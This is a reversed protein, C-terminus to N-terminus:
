KEEQAVLKTLVDIHDGWDDGYQENDVLFDIVEQIISKEENSIPLRPELDKVWDFDEVEERVIKKINM